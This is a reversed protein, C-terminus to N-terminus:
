VAAVGRKWRPRQETVGTLVPGTFAFSEDAFTKSLAPAYARVVHWQFYAKWTELPTSQMLGDLATLYSPQSVIVYDTKGQYGVGSLYTNWDFNPMLGALKAVEVKNYRKVPDRNDVRSWQARALETELAVIAKADAAANANGALTLMRTVHAEYKARTDAMKADEMKLYYDRDPMGLGSQGMYVAYRTSDRADQSVGSTFPVPLGQSSHKAILAALEKKDKIAAIRALFPEIPKAGLQDARAEDMYSAYLDGIKKAEVGQIKGAGAEDIIARLQPQIEERVVEFGGWRAKDAPIETQQLWKGSFHLFFDDQARVAPDIFGKDIGAALAHKASKAAKKAPAKTDAAYASTAFAAALSLALTNLLLRKM